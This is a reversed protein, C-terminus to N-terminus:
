GELARFTKDLAQYAFVFVHSSTEGFGIKSHLHVIYTRICGHAHQGQSDSVFDHGCICDNGDILSNSHTCFAAKCSNAIFM